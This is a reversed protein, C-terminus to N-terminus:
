HPQASCANTGDHVEGCGFCRDDYHANVSADHRDCGCAEPATGHCRGFMCDGCTGDDWGPLAPQAPDAGTIKICCPRCFYGPRKAIPWIDGETSGCESCAGNDHEVYARRAERVHDDVSRGDLWDPAVGLLEAVPAPEVAPAPEPLNLGDLLGDMNASMKTLVRIGVAPGHRHAELLATRIMEAAADTNRACQAADRLARDRDAEARIARAQWDVSAARGAQQAQEGQRAQERRIELRHRRAMAEAKGKSPDEGVEHLGYGCIPNFCSVDWIGTTEVQVVIVNLDDPSTM